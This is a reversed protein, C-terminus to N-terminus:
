DTVTDAVNFPPVPVAAIVTVGGGGVIELKCHVGDVMAEPALEVQVTVSEAEAGLPPALTASLSLLAANVDGPDTVTAAPVVEAANGTVAPVTVLLVLTVTVADRLPDDALPTSVMVGGAVTVAKVQGDLPVLPLRVQVTVIEITAGLPPVTTASDVFLVETVIGAETVTGAPYVVAANVALM